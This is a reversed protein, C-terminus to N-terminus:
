SGPTVVLSRLTGRLTGHRFLLGPLLNLTSLKLELPRFDHGLFTAYVRAGVYVAKVWFRTSGRHLFYM